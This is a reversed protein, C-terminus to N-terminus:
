AQKVSTVYACACCLCLSTWVCVTLVLLLLVRVRLLTPAPSLLLKEDVSIDATQSVAAMKEGLRSRGRSLRDPVIYNQNTSNKHKHKNWAPECQNFLFCLCLCLFFSFTGKQQAQAQAQKAETWVLNKKHKHKNKHKDWLHSGPKLLPPREALNWQINAIVVAVLEVCYSYLFPSLLLLLLLLLLLVFLVRRWSHHFRFFSITLSCSLRWVFNLTVLRNCVIRKCVRGRYHM